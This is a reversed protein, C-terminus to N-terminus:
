NQMLYAHISIWNGMTSVEDCTLAVYNVISVVDMIASTVQAYMFKAMVWSLSDLWRMKPNKLVGTFSYLATRKEYEVMPCGDEL